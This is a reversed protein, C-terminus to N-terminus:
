FVGYLCYPPAYSSAWPNLFLDLPNLHVGQVGYRNRGPDHGTSNAPAHLYARRSLFTDALSAAFYNPSHAWERPEWGTTSSFNEAEVVTMTADFYPILQSHDDIEDSGRSTAHQWKNELLSSHATDVAGAFGCLSALLLLPLPPVAACLGRCSQRKTTASMM